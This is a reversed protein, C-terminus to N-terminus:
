ITKLVPPSVNKQLISEDIRWILEGTIPTAKSLSIFSSSSSSSRRGFLFFFKFVFASLLSVFVSDLLLTAWFIYMENVNEEKMEPFSIFIENFNWDRYSADTTYEISISEWTSGMQILRGSPHSVIAKLDSTALAGMSKGDSQRRSVMVIWLLKSINWEFDHVIIAVQDHNM